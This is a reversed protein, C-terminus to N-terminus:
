EEDMEPNESLPKARRGAEEWASPPQHAAPDRETPKPRLARPRLWYRLITYGILVILFTCILALILALAIAESQLRAPPEPPDAPPQQITTTAILHPM